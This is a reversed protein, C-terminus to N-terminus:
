RAQRLKELRSEKLNIQYHYDLVGSKDGGIITLGRDTDPEMYALGLSDPPNIVCREVGDATMIKVRARASHELVVVSQEALWFIAQRVPFGCDIKAGNVTIDSKGVAYGIECSM